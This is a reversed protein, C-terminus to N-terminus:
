DKLATIPIVHVGDPRIYTANSLGCIVGLIKPPRGKPESEIVSKIHLLKEAADDLQHAGLKIEFAGWNGDPMEVVADIENDHYDQYHFLKADNAEAYIKLDRECLAEFLFGLTELDSLLAEETTGLLACALSPDSFHRKDSQKVRVSSRINTSFPQQNDLLFLRDFLNLYEAVTEVDIDEDDIEKIDRKLARNTATTSENRALSRLLLRIKDLNRTRGDIRNIDSNVVAELYQKPLLQAFEYDVDINEPWGGRIIFQIIRRLDIEGTIKASTDGSFIGRLSVSGSSCGMEFLSMPRMRLKAIRGAGSHFVGRNNPTSSGTLIFHGKGGRLDIEHRVADWISPVEQWEDILRPSNGELILSPDMLALKRNSFNGRSSGVYFSSKCHHLSTRTKGSWKPGEICVAGFAQLYQTMKRDILRPLYPKENMFRTEKQDFM